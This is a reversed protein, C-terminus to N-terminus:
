REPPEDVASSVNGDLIAIDEVTVDSMLGAMTPHDPASEDGDNLPVAVLVLAYTGHWGLVGM